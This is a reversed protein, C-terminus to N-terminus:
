TRDLGRLSRAAHILATIDKGYFDADSANMAGALTEFRSALDSAERRARESAGIIKEAVQQKPRKAEGYFLAKCQRFSIGAKTAARALWSERTDFPRYPGAIDAIRDSWDTTTASMNNRDSSELM